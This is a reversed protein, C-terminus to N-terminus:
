EVRDPFTERAHAVEGQKGVPLIGDPPVLRVAEGLGEATEM